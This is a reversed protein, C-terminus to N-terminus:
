PSFVGSIFSYAHFKAFRPPGFISDKIVNYHFRIVNSKLSVTLKAYENSTIKAYVYM